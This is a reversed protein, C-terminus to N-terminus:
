QSVEGDCMRELQEFISSYYHKKRIGTRSIAAFIMFDGAYVAMERGFKKQVSLQGRRTDAEDIIDDHILSATHCMEIIAAIETVDVSKGNLRACILTLLPRIQKGRASLVWDLLKQMSESNSQCLRDIHANVMAARYENGADRDYLEEEDLLILKKQTQLEYAGREWIKM